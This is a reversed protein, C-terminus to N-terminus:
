LFVSIVRLSCLRNWLLAVVEGGSVSQGFLILVTFTVSSWCCAPGIMTLVVFFQDCVSM